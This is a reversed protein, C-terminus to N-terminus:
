VIDIDKLKENRCAGYYKGYDKGFYKGYGGYGYRSYYYGSSSIDMDNLVVGLINAKSKTLQKKTFHIINRHAMRSRVVLVVGDVLSAILSPDTVASVPPSDFIVLDFVETLKKMFVKFSQSSLIESPNQPLAGCALIYLNESHTSKVHNEIAQRVFPTEALSFEANFEEEQVQPLTVQDAAVEQNEDFTFSAQTLSFIDKVIKSVKLRIFGELEKKGMLGLNLIVFEVSKGTDKSRQKIEEVQQNSLHKADKIIKLLFNDELNNSYTDAGVLIGDQFKIKFAAEDATIVLSGTKKRVRLIHFVDPLSMDGGKEFDRRNQINGSKLSSGYISILANTLGINKDLGFFTHVMPNRLDTDVILVKLGIQAFSIGMNIATTTKGERPVASTVMLTKPPTDLSCMGVNTRLSRYSEAIKSHSEKVIMFRKRDTNRFGQM